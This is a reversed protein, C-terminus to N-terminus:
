NNSTYVTFRFQKLITGVEQVHIVGVANARKFMPFASMTKASCARFCSKVESVFQPHTLCYAFFNGSSNLLTINSVIAWGLQYRAFEVRGAHRWNMSVQLLVFVWMPSMTIFYVLSVAVLVTITGSYAHDGRSPGTTGISQRRKKALKWIICLNSVAIILMPVFYTVIMMFFTLIVLTGRNPETCVPGKGPYAVMLKSRFTTQIQVIINFVLIVAITIKANNASCIQNYKHPFLVGIM